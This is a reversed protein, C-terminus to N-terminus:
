FIYILNFWFAHLNRPEYQFDWLSIKPLTLLGHALAICACYFNKKKKKRSSGPFFSFLAMFYFMLFSGCTSLVLLSGFVHSFLLHVIMCGDFLVLVCTSLVLLVALFMLFCCTSLWADMLYFWNHLICLFFDIVLLLKFWSACVIFHSCVLALTLLASKDFVSHACFKLTKTILM